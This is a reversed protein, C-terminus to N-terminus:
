CNIAFFSLQFNYINIEFELKKSVIKISKFIYKFLILRIVPSLSQFHFKKNKLYKSVTLFYYTHNM